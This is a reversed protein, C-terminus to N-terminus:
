VMIVIFELLYMVISMVYRYVYPYTLILSVFMPTSVYTYSHKLGMFLLRIISYLTYFVYFISDLPYAMTALVHAFLWNLQIVSVILLFDLYSEPGVM